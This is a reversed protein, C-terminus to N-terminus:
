LEPREGRVSRRGAVVALRFGSSMRLRLAEAAYAVLRRFREIAERAADRGQDTLRYSEDEAQDVFKRKKQSKLADPVDAVPGESRRAAQGGRRDEWRDGRTADVALLVRLEFETLATRDRVGLGGALTPEDLITGRLGNSSCARPVKSRMWHHQGPNSPSSVVSYEYRERDGAQPQLGPHAPHWPSGPGEQEPLEGRQQGKRPSERSAAM